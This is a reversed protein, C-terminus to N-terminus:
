CEVITWDGNRSPKTTVFERAQDEGGSDIIYHNSSVPWPETEGKHNWSTDRLVGIPIHTHRIGIGM